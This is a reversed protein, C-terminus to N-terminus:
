TAPAIARPSCTSGRAGLVRGGHAVARPFRAVSTARDVRCGGKELVDLARASPFHVGTEELVELTAEHIREIDSPSLVEWRLRPVIPNIRPATM